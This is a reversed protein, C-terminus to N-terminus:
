SAKGFLVASVRRATEPTMPPMSERTSRLWEDIDAGLDSPRPDDHVALDPDAEDFFDAVSCRLVRAMEGLTTLSPRIEGRDIKVITTFSKGIAVAFAERSFGQQERLVKAREPKFIAV